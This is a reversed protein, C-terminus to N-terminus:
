NITFNNISATLSYDSSTSLLSFDSLTSTLSYNNSTSLLSFDSLTATLTFNQTNLIEIAIGNVKNYLIIDQYIYTYISNELTIDNTTFSYIQNSLEVDNFTNTLIQAQLEKDASISTLIQMRLDIDINVSDLLQTRLDVNAIVANYIRSKVELNTQVFSLITNRFDINSVATGYIAQQLETDAMVSTYIRNRLDLDAYISSLASLIQNQLEVSNFVSGLLQNQLELDNYVTLTGGGLNVWVTPDFPTFGVGTANNVGITDLLIPQDTSGSHDSLTADLNLKQTIELSILGFRLLEVNNYRRFLSGLRCSNTINLVITHELGDYPVATILNQIPIGDLTATMVITNYQFVGQNNYILMYPRTGIGDSDFFYGQAFYTPYAKYKLTVVDGAVLGVAQFNVKQTGNFQLAWAM